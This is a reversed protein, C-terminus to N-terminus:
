EKLKNLKFKIMLLARIYNSASEVEHQEKASEIDYDAITKERDVL